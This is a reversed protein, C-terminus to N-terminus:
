MLMTLATFRLAFSRRPLFRQAAAGGAQARAAAERRLAPLIPAAIM